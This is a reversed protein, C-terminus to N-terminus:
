LGQQATETPTESSVAIGESFGCAESSGEDLEEAAGGECASALSVWPTEGPPGGPGDFKPFMISKKVLKAHKPDMHKWKAVHRNFEAENSGSIGLCCM